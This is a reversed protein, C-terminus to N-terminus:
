SGLTQETMVFRANSDRTEVPAFKSILDSRTIVGVPNEGELVVVIDLHVVLSEIVNRSVNKQVTSSPPSMIEKARLESM